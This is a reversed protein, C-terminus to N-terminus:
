PAAAAVAGGLKSESGPIRSGLRIWAPGAQQGPGGLVSVPGSPTDRSCGSGVGQRDRLACYTASPAHIRGGGAWGGGRGSHGRCQGPRSGPRRHHHPPLPPGGPGISPHPSSPSLAKSNLITHQDPCPSRRPQRPVPQRPQPGRGIFTTCVCLSHTVHCAPVYIFLYM